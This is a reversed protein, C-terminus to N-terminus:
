GEFFRKKVKLKEKPVFYMFEFGYKRPQLHRWSGAEGEARKLTRKKEYNRNIKKKLKRQLETIKSRM